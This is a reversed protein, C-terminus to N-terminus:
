VTSEQGTRSKAKPRAKQMAASLQSLNELKRSRNDEKTFLLHMGGAELGYAEAAFAELVTTVKDRHEEM